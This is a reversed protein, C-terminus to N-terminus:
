CPTHSNLGAPYGYAMSSRTTAAMKDDDDPNGTLLGLATPMDSRRRSAMLRTIARPMLAPPNGPAETTMPRLPASTHSCPNPRREHSVELSWTEASLVM